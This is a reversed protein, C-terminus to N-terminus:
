AIQVICDNYWRVSCWTICFGKTLDLFSTILRFQYQFSDYGSIPPVKTKAEYYTQDLSRMELSVQNNVLNTLYNFVIRCKLTEM